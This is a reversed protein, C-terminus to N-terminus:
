FFITGNIGLYKQESWAKAGDIYKVYPGAPDGNMDLMQGTTNVSRVDGEVDFRFSGTRLGTIINVHWGFGSSDVKSQLNYGRLLHEDHNNGLVYSVDAQIRLLLAPIRLVNSIEPFNFSADLIGGGYLQKYYQSFEINPGPLFM